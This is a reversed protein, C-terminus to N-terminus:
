VDFFRTGNPLPSLCLYRLRPLSEYVTWINGLPRGLRQSCTHDYSGLNQQSAAEVPTVAPFGHIFHTFLSVEHPHKLLILSYEIYQMGGALLRTTGLSFSISPRPM